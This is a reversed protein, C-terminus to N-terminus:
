PVDLSKAVDQRLLFLVMGALFLYVACIVACTGWLAPMPTVAESTRMLHYVVWPQRGLETVTWGAQLAVFGLPGALLVLRLFWPYDPL